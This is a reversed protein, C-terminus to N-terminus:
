AHEGNGSLLRFASHAVAYYVVATGNYQITKEYSMGLKQMVRQSAFNAPASVAAIKPLKLTEFGWHLVATAAETAFGQGWYDPSIAYTLEVEAAQDPAPHFYHLGCHGILQQEAQHILAWVGFGHQQWHQLRRQLLDATQELSLLGTPSLTKVVAPHAYIIQYVQNLDAPVFSRFSLRHTSFM